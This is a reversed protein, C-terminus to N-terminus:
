PSDALLPRLAPVIHERLVDLAKSTHSTVLVSRGHALYHGVINGITHSKGTGPPGQVLVGTNSELRRVVDAQEANSPKTM